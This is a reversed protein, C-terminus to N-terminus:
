DEYKLGKRQRRSIEKKYEKPSYRVGEIWYEKPRGLEDIAPGGLRHREGDKYWSFNLNHTIAPGGIRHYVGNKYWKETNFAPNIFAPGFLRHRQGQANRYECGSVKVRNSLNNWGWKPNVNEFVSKELTLSEILEDYSDM